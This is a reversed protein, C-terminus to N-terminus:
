SLDDEFKECIKKIAEVLLRRRTRLGNRLAETPDPFRKLKGGLGNEANFTPLANSM